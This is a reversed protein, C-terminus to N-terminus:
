QMQLKNCIVCFQITCSPNDAWTFIVSLYSENHLQVKETDRAARSYHFSESSQLEESNETPKNRSDKEGVECKM